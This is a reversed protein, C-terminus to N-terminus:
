IIGNILATELETVKSNWLEIKHHYRLDESIAMEKSILKKFESITVEIDAKIEPTIAITIM